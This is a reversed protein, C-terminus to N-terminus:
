ICTRRRRHGQQDRGEYSGSAPVADRVPPRGSGRICDRVCMVRMTGVVEGEFSRAMLSPKEAEPWAPATGASPLWAPALLALQAPPQPPGSLPHCSRRASINRFPKPGTQRFFDVDTYTCVRTLFRSNSFSIQEREEGHRDGGQSRPTTPPLLAPVAAPRWGGHSSSADEARECCSVSWKCM